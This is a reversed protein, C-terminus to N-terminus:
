LWQQQSWRPAAHVKSFSKAYRCQPLHWGMEAIIMTKSHWQPGRLYQHCRNRLAANLFIDVLRLYLWTLFFVSLPECASKFVTERWPMSSLTLGERSYDNNKSTMWPSAHIQSFSQAYRYQTFYWGRENIIMTKSLWQPARMYTQFRSRKAVNLFLTLGEWSYDYNNDTKAAM